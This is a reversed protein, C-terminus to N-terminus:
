EGDDVVPYVPDEHIVVEGGPFMELLKKELSDAIEHAEYLQQKGNLELHFQIFPKVGSYRTKLDHIGLAGPHDRILDKIKQREDEGFEKDMLKDFAMKGIEWAGYLIYFAIGLAFIPDAYKWGFKSSLILAIIVSLNMGLDGVYHLSDASVATSKTRKVVYKQFIILAATAFISFVMVIIGLTSKETLQPDLFRQAANFIIFLASGAIFAAQSLASIDEAGSHGFRHEKDPPMLSYRIAMMNILSVIMDLSSDILSSLLSVSDTVIWAYFKIIILVFAVSVSAYTAWRMLSAKQPDIHHNNIHHSYHHM